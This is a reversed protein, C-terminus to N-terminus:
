SVTEGGRGKGSAERQRSEKLGLSETHLNGGQAACVVTLHGTTEWLSHGM